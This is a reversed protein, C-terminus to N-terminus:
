QSVARETVSGKYITDVIPTITKLFANINGIFSRPVYVIDQPQILVNESLRANKLIAATNSVIVQPNNRIDGRIVLVNKKVAYNTCDGALAIAEILRIDSTFTYVGPKAVEGLVIVKRGGFKRIMVSVQPEKVYDSLRRTLEEDLQTLTRGAAQMDGILPFSIMGDPRVIVESSLDPIRWVSIDLTDGLGIRYTLTTPSKEAVTVEQASVKEAKGRKVEKSKKIESTTEAPTSVSAYSCFILSFMALFFIKKTLGKM